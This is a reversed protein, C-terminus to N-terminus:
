SKSKKEDERVRRVLDTFSMEELVSEWYGM